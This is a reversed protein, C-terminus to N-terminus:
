PLTFDAYITAHDSGAFGKAGSDRVVKASKGVYSDAHQSTVFIHDIALDGGAYKYTGQGTTPLDSAVRLLKKDGELANLPDSGPVDNLDGGLLVLANANAAGVKVLIDHAATAEAVRRGPDDPDAKSKFHAPFVVVENTGLTLHIEPFERTFSTTSGDPRKLPTSAKYKTVTGLKGRALIAVDISGPAGTEAVYAVPYEFGAAKLSSQVATLCELKEVEALTIVDAGITALDDAIQKVRKDFADQTPAEEFDNPCNGSDCKTDFFRRVNLQELRLMGDRRTTKPDGWTTPDPPTTGGDDDDGSGGDTKPGGSTGGSSSTPTAIPGGPTTLGAGSDCAVGLAIASAVVLWSRHM